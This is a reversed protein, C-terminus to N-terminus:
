GDTFQSSLQSKSRKNFYNADNRHTSPTKPVSVSEEGLERSFFNEKTVEEIIPINKGITKSSTLNLKHQNLLKKTEPHIENQPHIM